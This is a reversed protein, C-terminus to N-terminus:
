KVQEECDSRAQAFASKIQDINVYSELTREDTRRLLNEAQTTFTIDGSVMGKRALAISDSINPTQDVMDSAEEAYVKAIKVAQLCAEPVFPQDVTVTETETVTKVITETETVYIPEVSARGFGAGITLLAIIGVGVWRPDSSM